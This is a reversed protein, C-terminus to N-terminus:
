QRKRYMATLAGVISGSCLPVGVIIMTWFALLSFHAVLGEGIIDGRLWLPITGTLLLLFGAFGIKM